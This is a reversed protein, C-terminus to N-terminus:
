CNGKNDQKVLLSFLLSLEYSIFCTFLRDVINIPFRSVINIGLQSFGLKIFNPKFFDSAVPHTSKYNSYTICISDIIGGLISIVVCMIMALIFLYCIRVIIMNTNFINRKFKYSIFVAFFSCIVYLTPLQLFYGGIISDLLTTAFACVLGPIWGCFFTLTVTGVTDLFLPVHLIFIALHNFGFNIVISLITSIIIILWRRIKENM